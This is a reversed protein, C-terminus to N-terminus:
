APIGSRHMASDEDEVGIIAPIADQGSMLV